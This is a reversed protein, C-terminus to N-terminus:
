SRAVMKRSTCRSKFVRRRDQLFRSAIRFGFFDGTKNVEDEVSEEGEVFRDFMRHHNKVDHHSRRNFSLTDHMFQFRPKLQDIIGGKSWAAKRAVPDMESVHLDGWNIAECFDGLEVEGDKARLGLDYITGDNDANLQRAFWTGDSMVEVLMGGYCHHFEAKQGVLRQLYSMQTLSGTTYMFKPPLGSNTAVSEMALRTHPIVCSRVGTYTSMGALPNAKTPLINLEGCFELDPALRTRQDCFYETLMPDYWLDGGDHRKAKKGPKEPQAHYASTNYTIRSVLIEANYHDAVAQVNRMAEAHVYTNNQACSLIYRKVKGSRPLSREDTKIHGTTSGAAVPKDVGARALARDVSRRHIGLVRATERINGGNAYYEALVEEVTRKQKAM